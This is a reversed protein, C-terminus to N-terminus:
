VELIPFAISDGGWPSQNCNDCWPFETVHSGERKTIQCLRKLNLESEFGNEVPM